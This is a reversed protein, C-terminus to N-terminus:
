RLRNPHGIRDGGWQFNTDWNGTAGSPPHPSEADIGVHDYYLKMLRSARAAYEGSKTRYNVVDANITSDATQAYYNALAECCLSSALNAVADADSAPITSSSINVSHLLTYTIRITEGTNPTSSLMRLKQGTSDEYIEWDKDGLINAPRSGAPYEVSQIMSFDRIWDSPLSYDYGSNGAIDYVKRQPRHKSYRSVGESIFSDKEATSLKGANDQIVADVKTQFDILSSM